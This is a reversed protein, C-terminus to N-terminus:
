LQWVATNSVTLCSAHFYEGDVCPYHYLVVPPNDAAITQLLPDTMQQLAKLNHGSPSPQSTEAEAPGNLKVFPVHRLISYSRGIPLLCHRLRSRAFLM